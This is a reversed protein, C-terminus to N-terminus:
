YALVSSSLFFVADQLSFSLHIKTYLAPGSRLQWPDDPPNLGRQAPPRPLHAEVVAVAVGASAGDDGALPDDRSSVAHVLLATPVPFPGRVCACSVERVVTGRGM